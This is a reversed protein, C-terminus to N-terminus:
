RPHQAQRPDAARLIARVACPGAATGPDFPDGGGGGGGILRHPDPADVVALVSGFCLFHPVEVRKERHLLGRPSADPPDVDVPQVGADHQLKALLVADVREGAFVHKVDRLPGLGFRVVVVDEDYRPHQPHDVTLEDGLLILKRSNLPRSIM